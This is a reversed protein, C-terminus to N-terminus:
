TRAASIGRSPRPPTDSIPAMDPIVSPTPLHASSSPAAASERPPTAYRDACSQLARTKPLRVNTPLSSCANQSANTDPQPHLRCLLNAGGHLHVQIRLAPMRKPQPARLKRYRSPRLQHLRPQFRDPHSRLLHKPFAYLLLLGQQALSRVFTTRAPGEVEDAKLNHPAKQLNRTAPKGILTLAVYRQVGWLIKFHGIAQGRLPIVSNQGREALRPWM